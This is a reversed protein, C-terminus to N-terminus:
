NQHAIHLASYPISIRETPMADRVIKMIENLGGQSYARM